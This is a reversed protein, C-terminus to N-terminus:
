QIRPLLLTQVRERAPFGTILNDYGGSSNKGQINGGRIHENYGTTTSDIIYVTNITVGFPLGLYVYSEASKKTKTKFISTASGDFACLINYSSSTPSINSGYRIGYMNSGNMTGVNSYPILGNSGGVIFGNPNTSSNATGFKIQMYEPMSEKEWALDSGYYMKDVQQSCYEVDAISSNSLIIM